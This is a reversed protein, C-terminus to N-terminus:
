ITSYVEIIAEPLIRLIFFFIKNDIKRIEFNHFSCNYDTRAWYFSVLKGNPDYESIEIRPYDHLVFFHDGLVKISNFVGFFGAREKNQIRKQNEINYEEREKYLKNEPHFENLLNGQQNYKRIIDMYRFAVYLKGDKSRAIEAMNYITSSYKFKLPEGFERKLDGQRNIVEILNKGEPWNVPITYIEENEGTTWSVFGKYMKISSLYTGEADLLQFRMNGTEGVILIDDKDIHLFLPVSLDGPGQGRRGLYKIFTGKYDFKAIRHEREETVYVNNKSDMALCRPGNLFVGKEAESEKPFSWKLKLEIAGDPVPYKKLMDEYTQRAKEEKQDSIKSPLISSTSLLVFVVFAAYAIEKVTKDSM